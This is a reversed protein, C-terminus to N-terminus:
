KARQYELGLTLSEDADEGGGERQEKYGVKECDALEEQKEEEKENARERSRCMSALSVAM